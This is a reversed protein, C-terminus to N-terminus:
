KQTKVVAPLVITEITTPRESILYMSLLFNFSLTQINVMGRTFSYPCLKFIVPHFTVLFCQSPKM